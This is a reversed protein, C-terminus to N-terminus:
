RRILCGVEVIVVFYSVWVNLFESNILASIVVLNLRSLIM